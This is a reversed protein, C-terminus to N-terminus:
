YGKLSKNEHNKNQLAAEPSTAYVNELYMFIFYIFGISLQFACDHTSIFAFNLSWNKMM